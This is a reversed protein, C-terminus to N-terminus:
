GLVMFECVGLVSNIPSSIDQNGFKRFRFVRTGMELSDEALRRSCACTVNSTDTTRGTILKYVAHSSTPNPSPNHERPIRVSDYKNPVVVAVCSAAKSAELKQMTTKLVLGNAKSLIM